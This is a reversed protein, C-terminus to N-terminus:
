QIFHLAKPDNWFPLELVRNTTTTTAAAAAATTTTNSIRASVLHAMWIWEVENKEEDFWRTSFSSLHRLVFNFDHIMNAAFLRECGFSLPLILAPAGSEVAQSEAPYSNHRGPENLKMKQWQERTKEIRKLGSSSHPM